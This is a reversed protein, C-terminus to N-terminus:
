RVRKVTVWAGRNDLIQLRYYGSKSKYVAVPVNEAAKPYYRDDNTQRWVQGNELFFTTNGEWGRFKGQLVSTFREQNKQAEERKFIELARKVVGPEERNKYETVAAVKAEEVAAQKEAEAKQAVEAAATTVGSEKYREIAAFLAAKEEESLKDLGAAMKEQASLQEEFTQASLAESVVALFVIVHSMISLMFRRNM